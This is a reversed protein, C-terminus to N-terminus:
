VDDRWGTLAWYDDFSDFTEPMTLGLDGPLSDEGSETDTVPVEVLGADLQERRWQWTAEVRQWFELHSEGNEPVEVTAGTFFDSDLMALRADRIIFYGLAPWTKENQFLLQAYVALQLYNSEVLMRRRYDFGGWKLDVVATEGSPKTAILDVVGGIAGGKFGGELRSEMRVDAVGAGQLHQVLVGLARSTTTVFREKEAQRGPALLVAGQQEILSQAEARAWREAENSDLAAIEPHANFYREFLAHTLNGRLLTGDSLSELTGPSQSSLSKSEL